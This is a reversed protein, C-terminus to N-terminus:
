WRRISPFAVLLAIVFVLIYSLYAAIVGSQTARVVDAARLFVAGVANWFRVGFLARAESEYSIPAFRGADQEVAINRRVRVAADLVVRTANSFGTGTYQTWAEYANGSTWVGSRSSAPRRVLVTVGWFALAFGTVLIGLGLPWVSSFGSFGPQILPPEALIAATAPAHAAADIAPGILRVYAPAALGVALAATGSLLLAATRLPSSSQTAKAAAETRAAGLFGSGVLKVFTVIAIGAAIGITAGCLAFAITALVNASRFAQLLAELTMWEGAFGGSPPLAALSTAALLVALTAVPLRRALGGLRDLSTTGVRTALESCGLFLTCKAFAHATAHVLAAAVGIGVLLELQLARGVFAVGLGIVVIGANEVSSYAALTRADRQASAWAIGFFTAVAGCALTAIGWWLPVPAAVDLGFRALGYFGVNLAAGAMLAAVVAPAASYGRALWISFPLQGLKAGFALLVLIFALGRITPSATGAHALLASLGFGGGQSLLVFAAVLGAGAAHTLVVTLYAAPAADPDNGGYAIAVYFALALLEWAFIFFLADDAACVCLSAIVILCASCGATRGRGSEDGTMGGLAFLGVVTAVGGILLVFAAALPDIHIAVHTAPDGAWRVDLHNSLVLIAAVVAAVGSALVGGFATARGARAPAVIAALFAVVTLILALAFWGLASM